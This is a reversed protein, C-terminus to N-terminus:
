KEKGRQWTTMIDNIIDEAIKQVAVKSAFLRPEGFENDDESDINLLSSKQLNRSSPTDIERPSEDGLDIGSTSKNFKDEQVIKKYDEWIQWIVISRTFYNLYKKLSM